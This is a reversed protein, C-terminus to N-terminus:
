YRIRPDLWAYCFDVVLNVTVYITALLIVVGQIIPYDRMYVANIMLTGLGPWAFITETVVAGGLLTGFRVGLSTVVPLMANKLAHRYIVLQERLGKSRAVRIFDQGMVELMESRVMRAAVAMTGGSLAVAPLVLHAPTGFGAAPLVGLYLAFLLMLILALWFGPMSVGFIAMLMVGNDLWSYPRLSSIVGAPIGILLALLFAASALMATPGFARSLEATVLRNTRYSKGLDGRVLNGLFRGYQVHIPQDIGMEARLQSVAQPSAYMGLVIEAPDGPAMRILFFVISAIILGVPILALVRTAFYKYLHM